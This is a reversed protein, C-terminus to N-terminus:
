TAKITAETDAVRGELETVRGELMREWVPYMADLKQDYLTRNGDLKTQRLRQVYRGTEAAWYEDDRQPVKTYPYDVGFAPNTARDVAAFYNVLAMAEDESMNFRPMRLVTQPRVPQPNLLFQFLWSPQLKEGLRYLPPPLAVRASKYDKFQD